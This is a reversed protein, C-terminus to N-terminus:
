SARSDKALSIQAGGTGARLLQMKTRTHRAVEINERFKARNSDCEHSKMSKYDLVVPSSCELNQFEQVLPMRSRLEVGAEIPGLPAPLAHHLKWWNQRGKWTVHSSLANGESGHMGPRSPVTIKQFLELSKLEKEHVDGCHQFEVPAECLVQALYNHHHQTPVPKTPNSLFIPLKSNRSM